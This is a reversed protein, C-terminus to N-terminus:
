GPPLGQHLGCSLGGGRWAVGAGDHRDGRAVIVRNQEIQVADQGARRAHMGGGPLLEEVAEELSTGDVHALREDGEVDVAVVAAVDVPLRAVVAHGGERAARDM